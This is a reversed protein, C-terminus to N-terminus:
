AAVGVEQTAVSVPTKSANAKEMAEQTAKLRAFNRSMALDTFEKATM